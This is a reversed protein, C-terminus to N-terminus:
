AAGQLLLIAGRLIYFNTENVYGDEDSSFLNLLLSFHYINDFFLVLYMCIQCPRYYQFYPGVTAVRSLGFLYFLCSSM